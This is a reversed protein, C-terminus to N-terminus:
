ELDELYVKGRRECDWGVKLTKIDTRKKCVQLLCCSNTQVRDKEDVRSLFLKMEADIFLPLKKTNIRLTQAFTVDEYYSAEHGPKRDAKLREIRQCNANDRFRLSLSLTDPENQVISGYGNKVNLKWGEPIDVEVILILKNPSLLKGRTKVKLNIDESFTSKQGLLTTSKLFLLCFLGLVITYSFSSDKM